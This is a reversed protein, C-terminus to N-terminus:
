RPQGTGGDLVDRVKRALTKPSLPKQIFAVHQQEIGQLLLTEDTYGSMFVVRVHPYKKLVIDALERGGMGSMVVDTLLLDVPIGAQAAFQLADYGSGAALVHYGLPELTSTILKLISDDDEVVLITEDGGRPADMTKGTTELPRAGCVPFYIKFVTGRGEESYVYIHGSMQKVIGYVTSLGLGTGQGVNKTTYFPEFIRAQVDPSMGLGSDRVMLMAYQGPAVDLHTNAYSEDLEVDSVQINLTGGQPMADRANVALNMIIQEIHGPDAFIASVQDQTQLTLAVDEGIVRRLIKTMNEVIARVDVVQLEIDNKRSFVLLQRVLAAAKQGSDNIVTLCESLFDGHDARALAIESYGIIATLINNFDHAIGGALRGISEMKQAQLFQFRLHEKEQEMKAAATIDRIVHVVAGKLNSQGPRIFTKIELSNGTVPDHIGGPIALVADRGPAPYPAAALFSLLRPAQMSRAAENMRTITGNGDVLVIGDNITNFSDEWEQEAERLKRAAQELKVVHAVVFMFSLLALFLVPSFWLRFYDFAGYAMFLAALAGVSWWVMLRRGNTRLFLLSGALACLLSAVIRVTGPTEVIHSRDILNNVINAHAEVGSMGGRLQSFPTLVSRELGDATVGMLIIRNTFFAPPYRGEIIDVMSIRPFTGPVGYYNIKRGDLQLIDRSRSSGRSFPPPEQRVFPKGSIVEHIVSDFSPFAAGGTHLTHYASRVFGDVDQELHIHGTRFPATLSQPHLATFPSEISVPLVVRGHRRIVELLVPDDASPESLLLDLGVVRAAGLTELLRAYYARKLPWRGLRSLTQEDIAVILIRRDPERVGRLRFFLDYCYNNIGEYMGLFDATLILACGVSMILIYRLMLTRVTKM